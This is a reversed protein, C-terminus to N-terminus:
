SAVKEKKLKGSEFDKIVQQVDGESTANYYAGEDGLDLVITKAVGASVRCLKRIQNSVNGAKKEVFFRYKSDSGAARAKEYYAKGVKEIDTSRQDKDGDSAGDLLVVVCVEDNLGDTEENVDNVAKPYWPFEQGEPDNSCATRAAKNIVKGTDWDIVVLSPIGRVEFIESLQQKAKRDSFPLAHWPM